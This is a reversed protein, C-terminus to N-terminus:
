RSTRLTWTWTNSVDVGGNSTLSGRPSAPIVSWSLFRFRVMPGVVQVILLIFQLWSRSYWGTSATPSSPADLAQSFHERNSQARNGLGVSGGMAISSESFAPICNPFENSRWLYVNMKQTQTRRAAYVHYAFLWARRRSTLGIDLENSWVVKWLSLRSLTAVIPAIAMRDM